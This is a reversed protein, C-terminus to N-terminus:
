VVSKRDIKIFTSGLEEIAKRLNEPSKQEGLYKFERVIDTQKGELKFSPNEERM